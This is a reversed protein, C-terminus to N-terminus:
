ATLFGGIGIGRPLLSLPVSVSAPVYAPPVPYPTFKETLYIQTNQTGVFIKVLNFSYNTLYTFSAIEILIMVHLNMEFFVQSVIRM